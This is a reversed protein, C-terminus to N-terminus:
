LISNRPHDMQGVRDLDRDLEAEWEAPDRAVLEALRRASRGLRDMRDKPDPPSDFWESVEPDIDDDTLAKHARVVDDVAMAVAKMHGMMPEADKPKDGMFEKFSETVAEDPLSEYDVDTWEKDWIWKWKKPTDKKTKYRTRRAQILKFQKRSTAPM